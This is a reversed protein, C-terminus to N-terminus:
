TLVSHPILRTAMREVNCAAVMVKVAVRAPSSGPVAVTVELGTAILSPNTRALLQHFGPGFVEM